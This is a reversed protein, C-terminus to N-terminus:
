GRPIQLQPHPLPWPVPSPATIKKTLPGLPSMETTHMSFIYRPGPLCITPPLPPLAGGWLQFKKSKSMCHFGSIQRSKTNPFALFDWINTNDQLFSKWNKFDHTHNPRGSALAKPYKIVMLIKRQPLKPSALACPAAAVRGRGKGSGGGGGEPAAWLATGITLM